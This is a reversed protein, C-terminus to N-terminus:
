SSTLKLADKKSSKNPSVALVKAIIHPIDKYPHMKETNVVKFTINFVENSKGIMDKITETSFEWKAIQYASTDSVKIYADNFILHEESAFKLNMPITYEKGILEDSSGDSTLSIFVEILEANFDEGPELSFANSSYLYLLIVIASLKMLAGLMQIYPM